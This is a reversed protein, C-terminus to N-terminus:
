LVLHPITGKTIEALGFTQLSNSFLSLHFYMNKVANDYEM